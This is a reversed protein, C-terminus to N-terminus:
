TWSTRFRDATYSNGQSSLLRLNDWGREVRVRHLREIPSKGIVVFNVRQTVHSVNGNFSDTISTCMTCPSETTPGFMYSYVILSDKGPAFLDSLKM